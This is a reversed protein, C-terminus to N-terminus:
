IQCEPTPNELKAIFYSGAYTRRNPNTIHRFRDVVDQPAELLKGRNGAHVALHSLYLFLPKNKNHTRIVHVAEDTFLDTAYRGSLDYAPTTNRRM